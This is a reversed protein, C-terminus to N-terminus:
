QSNQFAVHQKSLLVVVSSINVGFLVGHWTQSSYLGCLMRVEDKSAKKKKKKQSLVSKKFDPTLYSCLSPM